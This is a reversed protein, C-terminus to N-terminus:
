ENRRENLMPRVLLYFAMTLFQSRFLLGSFVYKSNQLICSRGLLENARRRCQRSVKIIKYNPSLIQKGQFFQSLWRGLTILVRALFFVVPVGSCLHRCFRGGGRETWELWCIAAM